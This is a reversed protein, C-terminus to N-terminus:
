LIIGIVRSVHLRVYFKNYSKRKSKDLTITIYYPTDDLPPFPVLLERITYEYLEGLCYIQVIMGVELYGDTVEESDKLVVVRHEDRYYSIEWLLDAVLNREFIGGITMTSDDFDRIISHRCRRPTSSTTTEQQCPCDECEGSTAPEIPPQIPTDTM